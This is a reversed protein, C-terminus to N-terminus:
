ETGVHCKRDVASRISVDMKGPLYLVTLNGCGNLHIIYVPSGKKEGEFLTKKVRGKKGVRSVKKKVRLIGKKGVRQFRNKGGEWFRKNEGQVRDNEGQLMNREGKVENKKM